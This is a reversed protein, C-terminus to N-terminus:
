RSCPLKVRRKTLGSTVANNRRRVVNRFPHGICRHMQQEEREFEVTNVIAHDFARQLRGFESM